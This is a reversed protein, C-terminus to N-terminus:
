RDLLGFYWMNPSNLERQKIQCNNRSATLKKYAMHVFVFSMDADRWAPLFIRSCSPGTEGFDRYSKPGSILYEFRFLFFILARTRALLISWKTENVSLKIMNSAFSNFSRDQMYVDVAKRARNVIPVKSFRAGARSDGHGACTLAGVIKLWKGNEWLGYRM